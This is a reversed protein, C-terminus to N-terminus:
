VNGVSLVSPTQACKVTLHLLNHDCVPLRFVWVVAILEPLVGTEFQVGLIHHAAPVDDTFVNGPPSLPTEM